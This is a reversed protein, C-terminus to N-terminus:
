ESVITRQERIRHSRIFLKKKSFYRLRTWNSSKGAKKKYITGFFVCFVISYRLSISMFCCLFGNNKWLVRRQILIKQISIYDFRPPVSTNINVDYKGRLIGFNYIRRKSSHETHFNRSAQKVQWFLSLLGVTQTNSFGNSNLQIGVGKVNATIRGHEARTAAVYLRCLSRTHPPLLLLLPPPPPTLPPMDTFRIHISVTTKTEIRRGDYTKHPLM